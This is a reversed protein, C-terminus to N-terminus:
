CMPFPSSGPSCTTTSSRTAATRSSCARRAPGGAALEVTSPGLRDDLYVIRLGNAANAADFTARDYAKASFFCIDTDTTM